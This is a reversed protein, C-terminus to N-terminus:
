RGAPGRELPYGGDAWDAKGGAYDWVDRFGLRELKAAAKPSAQCDFSGCYVVIKQESSFREKATRGIVELPINIAGPLHGRAYEEPALVDILVLEDGRDLKEKLEERDIVRAM